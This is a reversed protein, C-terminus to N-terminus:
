RLRENQRFPHRHPLVVSVSELCKEPPLNQQEAQEAGRDRQEGRVGAEPRGVMEWLEAEDELRRHHEGPRDDGHERRRLECDVPLPDVEQERAAEGDGGARRERERDDGDEATVRQVAGLRPGPDAAADEGVTQDGDGGERAFPRSRTAADHRQGDEQKREHEDDEPRGGYREAGCERREGRLVHVLRREQERERERELRQEVQDGHDAEAQPEAVAAAIEVPPDREPRREEKERRQVIDDRREERVARDRGAVEKPDERVADEEDADPARDARRLEAAGDRLFAGPHSPLDM